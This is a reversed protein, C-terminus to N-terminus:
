EHAGRRFGGGDLFLTEAPLAFKARAFAIICDGAAQFHGPSLRWRLPAVVEEPVKEAVFPFKRLAWGTRVLPLRLTACTGAGHRIRM